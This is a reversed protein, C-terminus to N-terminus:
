TYLDFDIRKSNYFQGGPTDLKRCYVGDPFYGENVWTQLFLPCLQPLVLPTLPPLSSAFHLLFSKVQMQTSSFPGYLEADGTNEWKYEWMVDALGDGPSETDLIVLLAMPVELPRGRGVVDRRQGEIKGGRQAPTPTELEGEAVEEAFMDLSPPATPDRPGQTQCGLGKLRMALRERTEQYVGLNGRAVMQDALGSLRDLRQPSSPRGPGKSGGKGGGRAGLRRLAGAVTERPLMLELLGELLAQASMPTQGLSDEEESDSPPRQNPPRERIKVQLTFIPPNQKQCVALM